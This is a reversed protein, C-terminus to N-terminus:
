EDRDIEITQGETDQIKSIEGKTNKSFRTANGKADKIEDSVQGAGLGLSKMQGPNDGTYANGATASGSDNIVVSKEDPRVVESLRNWENYKFIKVQNTQNTETEMLGDSRYTFSKSKNDPFVVRTLDNGDYHFSTVRGVPDTVSALKG